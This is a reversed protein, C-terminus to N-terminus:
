KVNFPSKPLSSIFFQNTMIFYWVLFVTLVTKNEFNGVQGIYKYLKEGERFYVQVLANLAANRVTKDKDSIQKAVEKLAVGPSPQCVSMGATEILSGVAELCETFLFYVDRCARRSQM